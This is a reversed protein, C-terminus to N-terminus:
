RMTAVISRTGTQPSITSLDADMAEAEAPPLELLDVWKQTELEILFKTVSDFPNSM